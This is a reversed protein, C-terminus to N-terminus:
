GAMKRASRRALSEICRCVRDLADESMASGSPLCLGERFLSESVTGSRYRCGAFVPQMHLPKWVPRSEINETELALRVEEPTAGLRDADIRIVTLWRNSRGFPAEPMLSIGPLSSLRSAYFNFNRRRAAVFQDLSELQALGLAALVNSLRYNFGIQSHQYHPAADRAQASLFEAQDILWEDDSCLMGGGSTTIIKNGNFSFFSAWGSRGVSEGRYTAGLAEAADEIVPIDYSSAVEVIPQMDASQGFVDVAIVARPLRGRKACEALEDALLNPDLNWSISESDIFVPTGGEYAIPNASACFTLTSCIVEDGPQLQLLRLTLHLAATGSAVACARAVGVRKAVAAEFRKLHPGAPAVWNSAIAEALYEQERGVMHPPSLYIRDLPSEARTTMMRHDDSVM